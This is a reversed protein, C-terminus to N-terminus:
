NLGDIFLNKDDIYFDASVKKCSDGTINSNVADFELGQEMCWLVAETLQSDTRCTWLIIKNGAKKYEKVKNIIEEKPNGINPYNGDHLVGDFDIAYIKYNNQTIGAILAAAKTIEDHM